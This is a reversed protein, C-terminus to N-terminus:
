PVLQAVGNSASLYGRTYLVPWVMPLVTVNPAGVGPLDLLVTYNSPDYFRGAFGTDFKGCEDGLSKGAQIVINAILLRPTREVRLLSPTYQAYGPPYYCYIPFPSANGGYGLLAFDAADAVWIQVYNGEGKFGYIRIAATTARIEL